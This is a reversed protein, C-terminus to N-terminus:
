MVVINEHRARKVMGPNWSYYSESLRNKVIKIDIRFFISLNCRAAEEKAIIYILIPSLDVKPFRYKRM